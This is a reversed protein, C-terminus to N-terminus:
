EAKSEDQPNSRSANEENFDAPSIRGREQQLAAQMWTRALKLFENRKEETEATKAWGLCEEAYIKYENAKSM